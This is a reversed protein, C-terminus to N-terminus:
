VHSRARTHATLSPFSFFRVANCPVCRHRRGESKWELGSLDLGPIIVFSLTSFPRQLCWCRLLDFVVSRWWTRPSNCLFPFVCLSTYIIYSITGHSHGKEQRTEAFGRQWLPGRSLRRGSHAAPRLHLSAGGASHRFCEFSIFNSCFWVLVAGVRAKAGYSM